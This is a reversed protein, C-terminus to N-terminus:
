SLIRWITYHLIVKKIAIMFFLLILRIRQDLQEYEERSLAYYTKHELIHNALLNYVKYRLTSGESFRDWSFYHEVFRIFNRAASTRKVGEKLLLLMQSGSQQAVRLEYGVPAQIDSGLMLVYVDANAIADKDVIDGYKPSLVIRWRLTVPIEPIARSILERENKLDSVASIYLLIQDGM